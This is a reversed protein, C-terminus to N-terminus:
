FVTFCYSAKLHAFSGFIYRVSWSTWECYAAVKDVDNLNKATIGPDSGNDRASKIILSKLRSTDQLSTTM